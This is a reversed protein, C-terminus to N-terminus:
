GLIRVYPGRVHIREVVGRATLEKMATARAQQAQSSTLGYEKMLYPHIATRVEDGVDGLTHIYDFVARTYDRM